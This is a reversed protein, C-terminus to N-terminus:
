MESIANPDTHSGKLSQFFDRMKPKPNKQEWQTGLQYEWHTGRV